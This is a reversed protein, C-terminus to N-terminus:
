KKPILNNRKTEIDSSNCPLIQDDIIKACKKVTYSGSNSLDWTCKSQERNNFDLDTLLEILKSLEDATRGTPSRSWDWNSCVGYEGVIIRNNITVHKSCELHFLRPFKSSLKSDGTWRDEWFKTTSGDGISKSFSSRFNINCEDISSGAFIINRWCGSSLLRCLDDGLELGGNSGYLSRIIKVWLANTKTNFSWWWKGLLSLNKRKLSGLNLGGM